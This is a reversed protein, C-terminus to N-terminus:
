NIRLNQAFILSTIKYFQEYLFTYDNDKQKSFSFLSFALAFVSSFIIQNEEKLL